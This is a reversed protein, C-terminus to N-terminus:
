VDYVRNCAHVLCFSTTMSLIDGRGGIISSKSASQPM